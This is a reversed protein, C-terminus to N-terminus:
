NHIKGWTIGSKDGGVYYFNSGGTFGVAWIGGDVIALEKKDMKRM